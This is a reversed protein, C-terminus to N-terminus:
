NQPSSPPQAARMPWCHRQFSLLNPSRWLVRPVEHLRELHGEHGASGLLQVTITARVESFTSFGRALGESLRRFRLRVSRSDLPQCRGRLALRREVRFGGPGSPVSLFARPWRGRAAASSEGPLDALM